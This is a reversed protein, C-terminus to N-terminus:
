DTLVTSEELILDYFENYADAYEAEGKFDLIPKGAKKAYKEIEPNIIESGFAIGDAYDIALKM